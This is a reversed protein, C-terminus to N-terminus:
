GAHFSAVVVGPKISGLATGLLEITVDGANCWSSDYVSDGDEDVWQGDQWHYGRPHINRAEEESAAAM